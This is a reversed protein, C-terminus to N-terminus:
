SPVSVEEIVLWAFPGQMGTTSSTALEISIIDGDVTSPSALVGDVVVGDGTSNTLAIPASLVSVGNVKLDMTISASSGDANVLGHFGLITGTGTCVHVIKEAAAPTAAIGLGFDTGPKFIHRMSSSQLDATPSVHQKTISYAAVNGTVNGAM